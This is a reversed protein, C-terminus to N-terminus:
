KFKKKIKIAFCLHSGNLNAYHNPPLLLYFKLNQIDLYSQDVPTEKTVLFGQFTGQFM